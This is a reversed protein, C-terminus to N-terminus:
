QLVRKLESELEAAYLNRNVVRGEEDLLIMLPPQMVGMEEALRGDLGGEAHLHKWPYANGSLFQKATSASSDLNVGVVAFGRGGYRALLDKIAAMEPKCTDCWSAWYQVLVHKGRYNRIDLRGGDLTAGALPITKGISNLRRIAGAAKRGNPTNPFQKALKSYWEQAEETRGAFEDAMGLQLYAEAADKSNPYEKAFARLQKLWDEQVKVYDADPDQNRLGWESWIHQFRVHALVDSSINKGALEKELQALKEVGENYYGEMVAASYMDALQSYWQDRLDPQETLEALQRLLAARPELLKARQATSASAMRADVKELQAMVEQMKESPPGGTAGGSTYRSLAFVSSVEVDQSGVQPAEVLKWAEGVKVMVGIQVQEPKGGTDVLASVGEYVMVEPGNGGPAVPLAGPRAAGFDVFRGDQSIPPQGQILERFKGPAGGLRERFQSAVAPNLGLGDLEEESILLRRFALEDRSQIAGVVEEAAEHATIRRWRDIRGDQNEDMGWRAGGTNYWRYQDPRSDFDSDVDRYVELGNDFYCWVDVVNDSNTDAFRRLVQGQGDKVVWANVDGKKEREITCRDIEGEAPQAYEVGSQVPKPGLAQRATPAKAPAPAALFLALSAAILPCRLDPM